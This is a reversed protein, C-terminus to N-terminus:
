NRRQWDGQLSFGAWYFPHNFNEDKIMSIQAQRLSEAPSLNEKLMKQYFRLMLDSTARDDVKWLSAAVGPAGAYMFGRTLGIIGEGRIEKGLASECASLVVLDAELSLNYIDHLRLFGDQAKGNEDILSLVVGSLEPFDSNIIGHTAFHIYRAKKFNNENTASLNASFDLALFKQNDPVLRAIEEAERRSFRLRSFGSRLERPLSVTSVKSDLSTETKQKAFTKLRGDDATFVPDALIALSNPLNGTNRRNSRLVAVVSASPLNVIENTEILFQGNDKTRQGKGNRAQNEESQVKFKSSPVQLAAFPVYQLVGSSVILLRKNEIKEHVAGLLMRSLTEREKKWNADANQLRQERQRPTERLNESNSYAKINEVFQRAAQEIELRKPLEIIELSSKDAVFLFSGNEGLSYELLVSDGDLIEAQIKALSLTEPQILAAFRPSEARIKSQIDSYQRLLDDLEKEFNAAKDKQKASLANLRQSDKANITQRLLKEKKLVDDSVGARIDFRSEGLSELLNRARARESAEFALADFGKKPEKKHREVLLNIHFEYFDQKASFYSSRRNQQSINSRLNELIGIAEEIREQAEPFNNLDKEIKALSLLNLTEESSEKLERKIQLANLSFTKATQFDKNKRHAEGIFFLTAGEWSRDEIERFIPLAQNFYELAKPLNGIKLHVEGIKVLNRSEFRKNKQERFIQLSQNLLELAKQPNGEHLKINAINQLAVGEGNRAKIERNIALSKEYYELAKENDNLDNNLNGLNNLCSAIGNKQGIQTFVRYCFENAEIAREYYGLSKLVISMNAMTIAKAREDKLTKRVAIAQEYYELAPFPEGLDDYVSGIRSLVSGEQVKDNEAQLIPLARFYYDLSKRLEDKGHYLSGLNATIEAEGRRDGLNEFIKLAELCLQESKELNEELFYVAAQDTIARAYQPQLNLERFIAAAKGHNTRSEEWNSLLGNIQGLGRYAFAQGFHDEAQAFLEASERFVKISNQRSEIDRKFSMLTAQDYLREAKIRIKDADTAPRLTEFNIRYDQGGAAGAAGSLKGVFLIELRFEESTEALFSIREPEERSSSNNVEYIKQGGSGFLKLEIDSKKQDIVIRAFDGAKPKILYIHPENESIEREIPTNPLLEEPTQAKVAFVSIALLFLIIPYKKAAFM